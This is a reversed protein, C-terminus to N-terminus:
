VVLTHGRSKLWARQTRYDPQLSEVVRWFAASHNLHSLHSVEHAVLYDIVSEPAAVILWNYQIVGAATCHGWKTKTKRLRIGSHRKGVKEVLADTKKTLIVRAQERYWQWVANQILDPELSPLLVCLRDDTLMVQKRPSIGLHLVYQKGLFPFLEGAQYTKEVIEQERLRQRRLAGRVWEAKRRLFDLGEHDSVFTPLMLQVRGNRVNIELTRRRPSRKVVVDFDFEDRIRLLATTPTKPKTPM